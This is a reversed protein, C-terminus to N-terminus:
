NSSPKALSDIIPCDPRQDGQCAEVLKSLSRRMASLEKIKQEVAVLHDEAVRKVDASARQPNAYLQLLKRCDEIDFGLSRAQNVFRMQHIDNDSYDRYGNAKRTSSILGIQEYYRITTPQLGSEAAAKGINM